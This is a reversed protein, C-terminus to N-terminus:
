VQERAPNFDSGTSKDLIATLRSKKCVRGVPCAPKTDLRDAPLRSLLTLLIQSCAMSFKLVM